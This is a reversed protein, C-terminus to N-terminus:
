NKIFKIKTIEGDLNLNLIYLGASLNSIPILESSINKEM